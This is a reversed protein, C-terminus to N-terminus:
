RKLRASQKRVRVEFNEGRKAKLLARLKVDIVYKDIIQKVRGAKAEPM